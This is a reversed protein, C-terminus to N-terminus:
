STSETTTPQSSAGPAQPVAPSTSASAMAQALKFKLQQAQHQLANTRDQYHSLENAMRQNSQSVHAVVAASAQCEQDAMRVDYALIQCERLADLQRSLSAKAAELASNTKTTHELKQRIQDREEQLQALLTELADLQARFRVQDGAQRAAQQECTQLQEKVLTIAQDWSAPSLNAHPKITVAETQAAAPAPAPKWAQVPPQSVVPAPAPEIKVAPQVPPQSVPTEVAAQVVPRQLVPAGSPQGAALPERRRVAEEVWRIEDHLEQKLAHFYGSFKANTQTERREEEAKNLADTTKSM